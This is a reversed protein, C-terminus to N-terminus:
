IRFVHIKSGPWQRKINQIAEKAIINGMVSVDNTKPDFRGRCIVKDMDPIVSSHGRKPDDTKEVHFTGDWWWLFVPLGAKPTQGIGMYGLNNAKKYWM